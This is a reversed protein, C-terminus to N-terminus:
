DDCYPAWSDFRVRLVLDHQPVQWAVTQITYRKGDYSILDHTDWAKYFFLREAMEMARRGLEHGDTDYLILEGM